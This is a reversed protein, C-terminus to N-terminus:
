DEIIRLASMPATPGDFLSDSSSANPVFHAKLLSLLAEDLMAAALIVKARETEKNFEEHFLKFSKKRHDESM